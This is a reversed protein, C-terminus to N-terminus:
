QVIDIRGHEVKLEAIGYPLEFARLVDIGEPMGENSTYSKVLERFVPPPLPLGAVTFTEVSVTGVGNQGSFTGDFRVPVQGRLYSLLDLAGGRKFEDFASFNVVAEISVAEDARLTVTLSVVGADESERIREELYANIEVETLVVTGHSANPGVTSSSLQELKHALERALVATSRESQEESFIPIGALLLFAFSILLCKQM